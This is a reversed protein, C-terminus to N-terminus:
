QIKSFFENTKSFFKAVFKAVLLLKKSHEIQFCDSGKFDVMGFVM